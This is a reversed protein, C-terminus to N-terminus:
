SINRIIYCILHQLAIIFNVIHRQLTLQREFLWTWWRYLSGLQQAQTGLTQENNRQWASVWQTTITHHLISNCPYLTRSTRCCYRLHRRVMSSFSPKVKFCYSEILKQESVADYYHNM